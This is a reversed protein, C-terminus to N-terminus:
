LLARAVRPRGAAPLVAGAHRVGGTQLGEDGVVAVVQTIAEIAELFVLVLGFPQRGSVLQQHADHIHIIDILLLQKNYLSIAKDFQKKEISKLAQFLLKNYRRLVQTKNDEPLQLYNSWVGNIQDLGGQAYAMSLVDTCAMDTHEDDHTKLGTELAKQYYKFATTGLEYDKCEESITQYMCGFGLYINADEIGADTAIELARTLCDFCKPYDYFDYFYISWLRMNADKCMVQQERSLSAEYRNAVITYCM